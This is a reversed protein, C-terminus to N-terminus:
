APRAASIAHDVRATRGEILKVVVGALRELMAVEPADFSARPVGSGLCLTGIVLGDREVLPAGAYFRLGDAACVYPNSGADPDNLPDLLILPASRRVTYQCVADELPGGDGEFGVKAVIWQREVDILSILVTPVDFTRACLMAMSELAERTADDIAGLRKLTAVNLLHVMRESTNPYRM